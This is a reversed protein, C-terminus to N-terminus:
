CVHTDKGTYRLHTYIGVYLVINYHGWTVPPQKSSQLLSGERFHPQAEGEVRVGRVLFGLFIGARKCTFKMDSM